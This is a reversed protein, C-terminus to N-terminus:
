MSRYKREKWHKNKHRILDASTQVEKATYFAWSNLKIANVSM